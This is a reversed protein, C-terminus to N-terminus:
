GVECRKQCASRLKMSHTSVSIPKGGGNVTSATVGVPSPLAAYASNASYVCTGGLLDRPVSASMSSTPMWVDLNQTPIRNSLLLYFVINFPVVCM